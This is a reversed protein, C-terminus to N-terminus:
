KSIVCLKPSVFNKFEFKGQGSTLNGGGVLLDMEYGAPSVTYHTQDGGDYMFLQEQGYPISYHVICQHYPLSTLIIQEEGSSTLITKNYHLSVVGDAGLAGHTAGQNHLRFAHTMTNISFFPSDCDVSEIQQFPFNEFDFLIQVDNGVHKTRYIASCTPSHPANCDYDDWIVELPRTYTPQTIYLDNGFVTNHLTNFASYRFAYNLMFETHYNTATNQYKFKFAATYRIDSPKTALDPALGSPPTTQLTKCFTKCYWFFAVNENAKVTRTNPNHYATEPFWDEIYKMGEARVADNDQRVVNPDIYVLTSISMESYNNNNIKM